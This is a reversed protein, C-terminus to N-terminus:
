NSRLLAGILSGAAIEARGVTCFTEPKGEVAGKKRLLAEAQDAILKKNAPDKLFTKIGAAGYGQHLAYSKLAEAKFFAVVLRASITPCVTRIRDAARAATLSGMVHANRTLPPLAAGDAAGGVAAFTPAFTAAFAPVLAALGALALTKMTPAPRRGQRSRTGCVYVTAGPKAGRRTGGGAPDDRPPLPEGLRRSM